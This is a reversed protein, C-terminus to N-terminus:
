VIADSLQKRRFNHAETPSELEIRIIENGAGPGGGLDTAVVTGFREFYASEVDIVQVRDGVHLKPYM